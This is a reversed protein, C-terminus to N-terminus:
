HGADLHHRIERSVRVRVGAVFALHVRQWDILARLSIIAASMTATTVLLRDLRGSKAIPSDKKRSVVAYNREIRRPVRTPRGEEGCTVAENKLIRVTAAFELGAAGAYRM